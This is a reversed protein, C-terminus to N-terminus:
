NRVSYGLVNFFGDETKLEQEFVKQEQINLRDFTEIINSAMHNTIDLGNFNRVSVSKEVMERLVPITVEEYMSPSPAIMGGGANKYLQRRGVPTDWYGTSNRMEGAHFPDIGQTTNRFGTQPRSKDYTIDSTAAALAASGAGGGSLGAGVAGGAAGAAIKGGAGTGKLKAVKGAKAAKATKALTKGGRLAWKAGGALAKLAAYGVGGTVAGAAISAVDIGSDVIGGVVDGSSFKKYASVGPVLVDTATDFVDKATTQEKIITLNKTFSDSLTGEGLAAKRVVKRRIESMKEENLAPASSAQSFAASSVGTGEFPVSVYRNIRDAWYLAVKQGDPFVRIARRKLVLLAPLENVDVNKTKNAESIVDPEVKTVHDLLRQYSELLANREVKTMRVNDEALARRLLSLRNEEFLGADVLVNLQDDSAKRLTQITSPMNSRVSIAKLM